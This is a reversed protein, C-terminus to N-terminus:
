SGDEDDVVFRIDAAEQGIEEVVLPVRDLDRLGACLRDGGDRLVRRVEHHHVDLEGVLVPQRDELLQLAVM